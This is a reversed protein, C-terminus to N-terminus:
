QTSQYEKRLTEGSIEITRKSALYVLDAFLRWSPKRSRLGLCQVMSHLASKRIKAFLEAQSPRDLCRKLDAAFATLAKALQRLGEPNLGGAVFVLLAPSERLGIIEKALQNARRAVSAVKTRVKTEPWERADHELTSILKRHSRAFKTIRAFETPSSSALRRMTPTLGRATLNWYIKRQGHAPLEEGKNFSARQRQALMALVFSEVHTLLEGLNGAPLGSLVLREWVANTEVDVAVGSRCLFASFYRFGEESESSHRTKSTSSSKM